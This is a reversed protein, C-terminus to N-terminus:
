WLVARCCFAKCCKGQCSVSNALIRHQFEFLPFGDVNFQLNLTSDPNVNAVHRLNVSIGCQIGFHYYLGESNALNEIEYNRPTKLLTRGDLPLSNHYVKLIALLTSM